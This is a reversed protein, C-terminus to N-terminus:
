IARQLELIEKMLTIGQPIADATSKLEILATKKMVTIRDLTLKLREVGDIRREKLESIIEERSSKRQTEIGYSMKLIEWQLMSLFPVRRQLQGISLGAENALWEIGNRYKRLHEIAKRRNSDIQAFSYIGRARPGKLGQQFLDEGIQALSEPLQGIGYYMELLRRQYLPLIRLREETVEDPKIGLDKALLELGILNRRHGQRQIRLSGMEVQYPTGILHEKIYKEANQMIYGIIDRYYDADREPQYAYGLRILQQAIEKATRVRHRDVGYRMCLTERLLEPMAQIVDKTIWEPEVGIKQALRERGSVGKRLIQLAKHKAWVLGRKDKFVIGEKKLCELWEESNDVRQVYIGYAYSLAKWFEVPLANILDKTLKYVPIDIDDALIEKGTKAKRLSLLADHKLSVIYNIDFAGGKRQLAKQAGSNGLREIIEQRSRARPVGIGYWYRLVEWHRRDLAYIIDQTIASPAVGLDEALMELGTKDRSAKRLRIIKGKDRRYYDVYVEPSVGLVSIEREIAQRGKRLLYKFIEQDPSVKLVETVYVDTNDDPRKSIRRVPGKQILRQMREEAAGAVQRIRETTLQFIAGIERLIYSGRQTGIGYRMKLIVRERLTLHSLFHSLDEYAIGDRAPITDILKTEEEEKYVPRYLSQLRTRRIDMLSIIKEESIGMEAAVEEISPERELTRRLQNRIRYLTALLGTVNEPISIQETLIKSGRTISQCIWWIAYTSFKNGFRCDFHEVATLLGLYGDQVADDFGDRDIKLQKIAYFVLRKNKKVVFDMIEQKFVPTIDSKGSHYARFLVREEQLTLLTGAKRMIQKVKDPNVDVESEAIAVPRLVNPHSAGVEQWLFIITLTVVIFKKIKHKM